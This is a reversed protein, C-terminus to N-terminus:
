KSNNRNIGSENVSINKRFRKNKKKMKNEKKALNM